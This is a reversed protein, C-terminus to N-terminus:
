CCAGAAARVNSGALLSRLQDLKSEDAIVAFEANFELALGALEAVKTAATLAVIQFASKDRRVLDLTSTGISGTAGLITITRAM